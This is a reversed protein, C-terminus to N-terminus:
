VQEPLGTTSTDLKLNCYWVNRIVLKSDFTTNKPNILGKYIRNWISHVAVNCQSDFRGEEWKVYIETFHLEHRSLFISNLCIPGWTFIDVPDPSYSVSM